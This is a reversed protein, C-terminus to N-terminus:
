WLFDRGRIGCGSPERYEYFERREPRPADGELVGYQEDDNIAFHTGYGNPGGGPMALLSEFTTKEGRFGATSVNALNHAAVELAQSQARLGASTAYYGSDM